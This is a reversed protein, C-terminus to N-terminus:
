LTILFVSGASIDENLALNNIETVSNSTIKKPAVIM